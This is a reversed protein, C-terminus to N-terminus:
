LLVFLFVWCLWDAASLWPVAASLGVPGSRAGNVCFRPRTEVGPCVRVCVVSRLLSARVRSQKLMERITMAHTIYSLSLSVDHLRPIKIPESIHLLSLIMKGLLWWGQTAFGFLLLLSPRPACSPQTSLGVPLQSCCAEFLLVAVSTCGCRLSLPLLLSPMCCPPYPCFLLSRAPAAGRVSLSEGYNFVNEFATNDKNEVDVAVIESVQPALDRMVEVPLNNVYGGDVLLSGNDFIPPLLGLVQEAFSLAGFVVHCPRPLTQQQLVFAFCNSRAQSWGHLRAM